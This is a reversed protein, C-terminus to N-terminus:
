VHKGCLADILQLVLRARRERNEKQRERLIKVTTTVADIADRCAV